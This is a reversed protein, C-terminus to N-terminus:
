PSRLKTMQRKNWNAVPGDGGLSSLSGPSLTTGGCGPARTTSVPPLSAGAVQLCPLWSGNVGLPLPAWPRHAHTSAGPWPGERSCAAKTTLLHAM